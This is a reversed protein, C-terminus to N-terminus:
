PLLFTGCRKANDITVFRFSSPSKFNVFLSRTEVYHSRCGHPSYYHLLKCDHPEPLTSLCPSVVVISLIIYPPTLFFMSSFSSLSSFFCRRFSYLSSFPVAFALFQHYSLYILTLCCWLHSVPSLVERILLFPNGASCAVRTVLHSPHIFAFLVVRPSM